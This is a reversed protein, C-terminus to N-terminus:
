GKDKATQKGFNQNDKERSRDGKSVRKRRPQPLKLSCMVRKRELNYRSLWDLPLYPMIGARLSNVRRGHLCSFLESVTGYCQIDCLATFYLSPSPLSSKETIFFGLSYKLPCTCKCLSPLDNLFATVARGEWM